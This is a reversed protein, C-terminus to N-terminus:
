VSNFLCCISLETPPFMKNILSTLLFHGSLNSSFSIYISEYLPNFQHSCFIMENACLTGSTLWSCSGTTLTPVPYVLMQVPTQLTSSSHRDLYFCFVRFFNSFSLVRPTFEVNPFQCYLSVTTVLSCFSTQHLCKLPLFANVRYHPSRQYYWSLKITKKTLTEM